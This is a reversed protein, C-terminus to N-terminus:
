SCDPYPLDDPQVNVYDPAPDEVFRVADIMSLGANLAKMVRHMGDMVNGTASLIIPHRLDTEEILRAHDALQRYTLSEPTGDIGCARDLEAIDTVRVRVRPLSASLAVLRDVDWALLGDASHRFYYQKRVAETSRAGDRELPAWVRPM